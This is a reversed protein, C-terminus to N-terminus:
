RGELRIVHDTSEEFTDDHSIVFLQSFDRIQSIQRALNRRRDEDLNTTPEDFFAVDLRSVERILALRVALAAAMQEGGSLSTFPRSLGNETLTIEYDAGWALDVEPQETIARYLLNARQSINLLYAETIRPGAAKLTARAFEIFALTKEWREKAAWEVALSAKLALLRSLEADCATVQQRFFNVQVEHKAFEARRDELFRSAVQHAEPEYAREAAEKAERATTVRVQAARFAEEATNKEEGRRPLREVLPQLQLSRQFAPQNQERRETSLALRDDLGSFPFLAELTATEKASAAGLQEEASTKEQSIEPKKEARKLLVAAEGAPDGLSALKAEIGSKEERSSAAERTASDCEQLLREKDGKGQRLAEQQRRTDELTAVQQAAEKARPIQEELGSLELQIAAPDGDPLAALQEFCQDRLAREEIGQKLVAALQAQKDAMVLLLGKARQAANIQRKGEEFAEIRGQLEGQLEAQRRLLSASLDKGELSPCPSDLIPCHGGSVQGLLTEIRKAESRLDAMEQKARDQEEEIRPLEKSKAELSAQEKLADQLAKAELRLKALREEQMSLQKAKETRERLRVHTEKLSERRVELVSLQEALPVAQLIQELRRATAKEQATIEQIESRLREGQRQKEELLGLKRQVEGLDRRLADQEAMLPKLAELRREADEIEKLKEGLQDRTFQLRHKAERAAELDKRLADRKAREQECQRLAKEAEEYEAVNPQLAKSEEAAAQAEEFARVTQQRNQEALSLAHAEQQLRTETERAQSLLSEWRAVEEKSELLSKELGNLRTQSAALEASWRNKEEELQPVRALETEWQALKLQIETLREKAAHGVDLLADATERYEEVQLIGDFVQKRRSAQLQFDQTFTGQPVGISSTFLAALDTEPELSMAKRLWAVTDQKGETLDVGLRSDHIKYTSGTDRDIRYEGLEGFDVWVRVVGKKAGHRLFDAKKYPMWDFLAWSIAEVITTKGAGNPGSIANTGGEFHFSAARCSKINEIELRLIRM